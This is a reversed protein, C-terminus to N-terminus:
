PACAIISSCRVLKWTYLQIIPAMRIEWPITQSLLLLLRVLTREKHRFGVLGLRREGEVAVMLRDRPDKINYIIGQDLVVVADVQEELPVELRRHASIINAKLTELSSSEYSFLIAPIRKLREIDYDSGFIRDGKTPKRELKKVKQIQKLGRELEEMKSLDSKVDIACAVGEAFFLSVADGEATTFPHYPTCIVVDIQGSRLGNTDIIEGKGLQFSRPFYCMLFDRVVDERHIGIDDPTGSKKSAKVFALQMQKSTIELIENLTNM